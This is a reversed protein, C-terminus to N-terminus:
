LTFSTRMSDLPSGAPRRRRGPRALQADQDALGPQVAVIAAGLHHGPRQGVGAVLDDVGAQVLRGLHDGGRGHLFRHVRDPQRDHRARVHGQERRHECASPLRPAPSMGIKPPPMTGASSAAASFASPTAATNVGPVDVRSMTAQISRSSRGRTSASMAAASRVLSISHLTEIGRGRISGAAASDGQGRQGQGDVHIGLRPWAGRRSRPAAPRRPWRARGASARDRRAGSSRAPAPRDGPRRRCPRPRPRRRRRRGPSWRGLQQRLARRDAARREAGAHLGGGLAPLDGAISGPAETTSGNAELPLDVLEHDLGGVHGIAPRRAPLPLAARWPGNVTLTSTSGSFTRWVWATASAASPRAPWGRPWAGGDRAAGLDQVHQLAVGAHQAGGPVGGIFASSPVAM